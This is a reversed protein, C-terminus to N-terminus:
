KYCPATLECIMGNEDVTIGGCFKKTNVWYMILKHPKM